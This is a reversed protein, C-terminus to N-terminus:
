KKVGKPPLERDLRFGDSRAGYNQGITVLGIGKKWVYRSSHGSPHTRLYTCLEGKVEVSVEHSGDNQKSRGKALGVVEGELPEPAKPLSALRAIEGALDEANFLVIKEPTVLFHHTSITRKEESTSVIDQFEIRFVAGWPMSAVRTTVVKASLPLDDPGLNDGWETGKFNATRPQDDPANLFPNAGRAAPILALLTLTLLCFARLKM